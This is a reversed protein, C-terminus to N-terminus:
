ISKEKGKSLFLKVGLILMCLSIVVPTIVPGIWPVPLLFLVDIAFLGKPWNILIHLFVYYFIDWFAFAILFAGIRKKWTEGAIYAISLLMIITSFERWMEVITISANKLLPQKFIVFAIVKLNLIISYKNQPIQKTLGHGVMTQLYFVVIAELLGFAIGFIILAIFKKM